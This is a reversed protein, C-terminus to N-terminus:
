PVIQTAIVNSARSHQIVQFWFDTSESVWPATARWEVNGRADTGGTAGLKPNHLDVVVNLPRIFTRGLGHMSYLLWARANPSQGDATFIIPELRVIPLPSVTLGPNDVCRFVYASGKELDDGRAGIVASRGDLAVSRGFFDDAEGDSAVLKFAEVETALDFLYASGSNIGQDDDTFTGVLAVNGDIDVAAGLREGLEGDPAKLKFTMEGSTLDFVYAAGSDDVLDDDGWAGVIARDGEIAVDQGFFDIPQPNPATLKYLEEGTTMDFVYAAGSRDAKGTAGVIALNGDIAVAGGFNDSAGADSAHLRFLEEGTTVDYVFAAGAGVGFEDNGHAGIIARKGSIGVSYGFLDQDSGSADTFKFLEWGKVVDFIYAAGANAGQDDVGFAGVIAHDGDIAVSIGFFDLPEGDEEAILKLLKEGTVNDFLYAAGADVATDDDGSSGVITLNGSVAVAIGFRDESAGDAPVLKFSERTPVCEQAMGVDICAGYVMLLTILTCATAQRRWGLGFRVGRRGRQPFERFRRM